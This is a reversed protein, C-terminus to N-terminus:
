QIPKTAKSINDERTFSNADNECVYYTNQVRNNEVNKVDSFPKSDPKDIILDERDFDEDSELEIEIDEISSISESQANINEPKNQATMLLEDQFKDTTKTNANTNSNYLKNNPEGFSIRSSEDAENKISPKFSNKSVDVHYYNTSPCHTNENNNSEAAPDVGFHCNSGQKYLNCYFDAKQEDNWGFIDHNNQYRKVNGPNSSLAL